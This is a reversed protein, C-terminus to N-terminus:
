PLALVGCGTDDLAPTASRPMDLLANQATKTACGARVAVGPSSGDVKRESQRVGQRVQEPPADSIQEAPMHAIDYEPYLAALRSQLAVAPPPPDDRLAALM